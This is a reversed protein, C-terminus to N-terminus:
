HDSLTRHTERYFLESREPNETIAIVPAPPSSLFDTGASEHAVLLSELERRLEPNSGAVEDLYARRKAPELDLAAQLKEKVAIWHEQIM